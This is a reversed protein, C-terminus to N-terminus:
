CSAGALCARYHATMEDALRRNTFLKLFRDRGASGMTALQRDDLSLVADRLASVDGPKILVGTVGDEVVEPLGGVRSAVVARGARMAELAVLGFGEWRSPIVVLDAQALEHVIDAENRWGLMKVNAAPPFDATTDGVVSAGIVRLSVAEGLPRLAEILLDIGKQRDLRGIFLLRRPGSRAGTAGANAALPAAIDGIGNKVTTLRDARIGIDIGRQREYDSIAIIRDARTSLWREVTAAIRRTIGSGDGGGIDFGWGHACYVIRPRGPLPTLRGVLGAFSSHLHVIDPRFERTEHRLTAALVRLAGISRGSSEFHRIMDQPLRDVQSAHHAPVIIRVGSIEPDALQLPVLQNLYTGCGGMVSEAVHLIRM